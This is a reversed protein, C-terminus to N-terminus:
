SAPLKPRRPSPQSCTSARMCRLRTKAPAYCHSWGRARLRSAPADRWTPCTCLCRTESPPRWPHSLDPRTAGGLVVITATVLTTAVIGAAASAAAAAAASTWGGRRMRTCSCRCCTSPWSARPRCWPTRRQLQLALPKPPSQLNPRRSPLRSMSWSPSLRGTACPSMLM